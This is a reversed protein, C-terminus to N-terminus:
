LSAQEIFSIICDFNTAGGVNICLTQAIGRLVVPQGNSNAFDLTVVDTTALTQRYITGVVTGETPDASYNKVVATAAANGSDMPVLTANASTGGTAATSRKVLTFVQSASPKSITVALVRVITTVSGIIEVVDGSGAGVVAFAAWYSALTGLTNIGDNTSDIRVGLNNIIRSSSDIQLDGIDLNAVTPLATNFVGGVRVPNGQAPANDAAPGITVNFLPM